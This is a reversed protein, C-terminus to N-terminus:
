PCSSRAFVLCTQHRSKSQKDRAQKFREVIKDRLWPGVDALKKNGGGRDKRMTRRHCLIWLHIQVFNLHSEM